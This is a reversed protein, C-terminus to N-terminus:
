EIKKVCTLFSEELRRICNIQARIQCYALCSIAERLPREQRHGGLNPANHIIVKLLAFLEKQNQGRNMDCSFASTLELM